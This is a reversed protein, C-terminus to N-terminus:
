QLYLKLSIAGFELFIGNRPIGRLFLCMFWKRFAKCPHWHWCSKKVEPSDIQYGQNQQQHHSFFTQQPNIKKRRIYHLTSCKQDFASKRKNIKTGNMKLQGQLLLFQWFFSSFWSSEKENKCPDSNKWQHRQTEFKSKRCRGRFNKYRTTKYRWTDCFRYISSLDISSM